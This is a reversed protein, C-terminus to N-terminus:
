ASPGGAVNELLKLMNTAAKESKTTAIKEVFAMWEDASIKGSTDADMALLMDKVGGMEVRRLNMDWIRQVVTRCLTTNTKINERLQAAASIITQQKSFAHLARAPGAAAPQPITRM